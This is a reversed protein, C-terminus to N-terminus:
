RGLSLDLTVLAACAEIVPVARPVICPDHRGHIEITADEMKDMDITNQKISISATPKIAVRFVIPMGNTIGGNIGGNHNTRTRVETGDMYFEDNAQSGRMKSIEFGTGFEVGKVAPISFLLSSLESEFSHFFPSGIGSPVNLVAGEIVGGVSDQAMRAKEVEEAMKEAVEENLVPLRMRRLNAAEEIGIGNVDFHRDCVNAISLIHAATYSEMNQLMQSAIAGAFVLPATLRGSFHGGGRYDNYGIYKVNGTYDAHGPRALNREYDGSRTNTNRIEFALPAGTTVGDLVGSLIEFDDAELRKTSLRSKGPARRAMELRITDADLEIGPALGDLVGGIATGHSEGFITFKLNRGWTASM